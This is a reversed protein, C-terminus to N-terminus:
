DKKESIGLYVIKGHSKVKEIGMRGLERTLVRGFMNQTHVGMGKEGAFDKYLEYMETASMREDGGFSFCDRLWSGVPNNDSLYEENAVRVWDPLPISKMDIVENQVELLMQIFEDRWEDSKARTKLTIDGQRENPLVPKAVFQFPFRIIKVRRDIGATTGNFSPLTNTSIVPTYHPVCTIMKKSYLGRATIPDRGTMLKVLDANLKKGEEPESTMLVRKYRENVLVPNPADQAKSLNTLLEGPATGTYGGLISTIMDRLLGKGNGGYGVWILFQEFRNEGFLCSAIARLIYIKMEDNEFMGYITDEILKRVEPNKKTPFEYGTTLSIYDDPAIMRKEKKTLDYVTGCSFALLNRNSNMKNELDEDYYVSELFRLIGNVYEKTGLTKLTSILQKMITNRETNIQQLRTADGGAEVVKKATRIAVANMEDEVLRMLTNSVRNFMTPPTNEYHKWINTEQDLSYWGVGECTLYDDPFMGYFFQGCYNHNLLPVIKLFDNREHNMAKFAEYDDERLWMWLTAQTIPKKRRGKITKFQNTIWAPSGAEWFKSKKSAEILASLPIRENYCIFMIKIWDRYHDFRKKHTANLLKILLTEDTNTEMPDSTSEYEYDDEAVPVVENEPEPEPEPEDIYRRGGLKRLFEIVEEPCERLGTEGYHKPRICWDYSIVEKTEPHRYQGPPCYILGGESRIDLQHGIDGQTQKLLPHYKFYYHFGKNTKVVCNSAEDCIAMLDKNHQVEPDDIDIVSVNAGKGCVLAFGTARDNYAMARKNDDRWNYQHVFGKDLKGEKMKPNFSSCILYERWGFSEMESLIDSRETQNMM